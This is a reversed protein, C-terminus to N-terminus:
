NKYTNLIIRSYNSQISINRMLAYKLRTKAFSHENKISKAGDRNRQKEEVNQICLSIDRPTYRYLM